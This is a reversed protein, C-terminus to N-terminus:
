NGLINGFVFLLQAGIYGQYGIRLQKGVPNWRQAHAQASEHVRLDFRLAGGLIQVGANVAASRWVSNVAQNLQQRLGLVGVAAYLNGAYVVVNGRGSWGLNLTPFPQFERLFLKQFLFDARACQCALRILGDQRADPRPRRELHMANRASEGAGARFRDNGRFGHCLNGHTQNGVLVWLLDQRRKFSPNAVVRGFPNLGLDAYQAGARGNDDIGIM